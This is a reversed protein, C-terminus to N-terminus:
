SVADVDLQLIICSAVFEQPLWYQLENVHCTVGGRESTDDINIDHIKAVSSKPLGHFYALGTGILKKAHMKGIEGSILLKILEQELKKKGRKRAVSQTNSKSPLKLEVVGKSKLFGVYGSIAARQGPVRRLFDDLDSQCPNRDGDVVIDQLLGFAPTLALRISHLSTKGSIQREVLASYYGKLSQQALSEPPLRLLLDSIQRQTADNSKATSDIMVRSTKILFRMPLERKRLGPTGYRDLLIQYTPVMGWIQDLDIFFEYFKHITIAAKQVGTEVGLWRGFERFLDEIERSSFGSCDLEIRKELLSNFYCNRCIKGYGAPMENGCSGCPILGKETCPKCLKHDEKGPALLRHRGCAHCCGYDSTQCKPCVAESISLRSVKSLRNSLDGCCPCVRMVRFYLSCSNCVPGYKTIKAIEFKDSGCRACPLNRYRCKACVAGLRALLRADKGCGSCLRKKFLRAYCKTCYGCENDIRHFKAVSDGCGYCEKLGVPAVAISM